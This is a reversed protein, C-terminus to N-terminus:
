STSMRDQCCLTLETDAAIGKAEDVAGAGEDVM